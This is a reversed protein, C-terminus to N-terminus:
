YRGGRIINTSEWNNTTSNYILIDGNVPGSSLNVDELSSIKNRLNESSVTSLIKIGEDAGLRVRLNNGLDVKARIEDM